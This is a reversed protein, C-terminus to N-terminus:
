KVWDALFVNTEGRAKGFRNSSFLIQKGDPSFMPFADFGEYFTIRELGTGDYNIKYIDFNRGRPDNMNSAFLMGTGDPLGYPAFNASGNVLVERKNSGDADMVWLDMSSPRVLNKALLRRYDAKQSADMRSTRRWVIQEGDPTFFPGGDYGLESTLQRLNGGESDMLWVEPDGTRLSTFVITKGDPSVTAEADYRPAHTLRTLGFGNTKRSFIDYSPYLAWVYGVSHDPKPPCDFGGLMTSAYVIRDEPLFYACTTAGLGSSVQKKGTGDPKMTYIRDCKVDGGSAQLTFFKGDPSWYAEANEGGFTLQRLNKFHVEQSDGPVSWAQARSTSPLLAWLALLLLVSRFSSFFMRVM